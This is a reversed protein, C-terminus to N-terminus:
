EYSLDIKDLFHWVDFSQQWPQDSNIVLLPSIPGRLRGYWGSTNPGYSGPRTKNQAQYWRKTEGRKQEAEM